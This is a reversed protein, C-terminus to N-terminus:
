KNLKPLLSSRMGEIMVQSGIGVDKQYKWYNEKMDELQRLRNQEALYESSYILIRNGSIEAWYRKRM